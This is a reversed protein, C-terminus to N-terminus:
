RSIGKPLCDYRSSRSSIAWLNSQLGTCTKCTNLSGSIRMASSSSTLLSLGPVTNSTFMLFPCVAYLAVDSGGGGYASVRFVIDYKTVVKWDEGRRKSRRAECRDLTMVQVLALRRGLRVM